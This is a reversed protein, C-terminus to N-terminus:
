PTCTARSTWSASATAATLSPSSNVTGNIINNSSIKKTNYM